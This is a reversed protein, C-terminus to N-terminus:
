AKHLVVRALEGDVEVYEITDPSDPYSERCEDLSSYIGVFVRSEGKYARFYSREEPINVLTFERNGSASVGNPKYYSIYEDGSEYKLAVVVTFRAPGKLDTCLVRAPLGGVTRIPKSLDIM